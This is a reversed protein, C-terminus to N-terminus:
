REPGAGASRAARARCTPARCRRARRGHDGLALVLVGARVEVAREGAEVRREPIKAALERALADALQEAARGARERDVCRAHAAVDRGLLLGLPEDRRCCSSPSSRRELEADAASHPWSSSSHGPRVSATTGGTRLASPSSTSAGRRHLCSNSAQLSRDLDAPHELLVPDAVELLRAGVPLELPRGLHAAARSTSTVPPSCSQM